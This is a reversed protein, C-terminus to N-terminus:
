ASFSPAAERFSELAIRLGTNQMVSSEAAKRALTAFSSTRFTFRSFVSARAVAQARVAADPGSVTCRALSLLERPGFTWKGAHSILCVCAAAAADVVPVGRRSVLAASGSLAGPLGVRLGVWGEALGRGLPPSWKPGAEEPDLKPM